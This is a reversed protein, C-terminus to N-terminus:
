QSKQVKVHYWTLLRAAPRMASNRSGSFRAAKSRPKTGAWWRTPNGIRSQHM